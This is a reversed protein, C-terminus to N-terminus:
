GPDLPDVSEVMVERSKVMIERHSQRSKLMVKVHSRIVEFGCGVGGWDSVSTVTM